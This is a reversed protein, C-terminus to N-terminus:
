LRDLITCGSNNCIRTFISPYSRDEPFEMPERNLKASNLSLEFQGGQHVLKNMSAEWLLKIWIKMNMDMDEYGRVVISVIGSATQTNGIEKINWLKM